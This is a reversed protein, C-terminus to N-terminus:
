CFVHWGTKDNLSYFSSIELVNKHEVSPLNVSLSRYSNILLVQFFLLLCCPLLFKISPTHSCFVRPEHYLLMITGSHSSWSTQTRPTMLCRAFNVFLTLLTNFTLDWAPVQYNFAIFAANAGQGSKYCPKCHMAEGAHMTCLANYLIICELFGDNTIM